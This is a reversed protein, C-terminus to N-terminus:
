MSDGSVVLVTLFFTVAAFCLNLIQFLHLWTRIYFLNFVILGAAVLYSFVFLDDPVRPVPSFRAEPTVAILLVPAIM